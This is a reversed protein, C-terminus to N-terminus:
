VGLCHVEVSRTRPGDTEFVMVDQWTGLRLASDEVPVTHDAGLAINKLHSDANAEHGTNHEYETDPPFIDDYSSLIDQRLGAEDENLIIHATTHPCFLLCFGEDIEVADAVQDTITVIGKEPTQLTITDHTVNM